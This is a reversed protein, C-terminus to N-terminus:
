RGDGRFTTNEQCICQTTLQSTRLVHASQDEVNLHGTYMVSTSETHAFRFSVAEEAVNFNNVSWVVSSRGPRVDTMQPPWKGPLWTSCEAGGFVGIGVSKTASVM